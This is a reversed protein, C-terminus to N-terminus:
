LRPGSSSGPPPSVKEHCFADWKAVEEGPQGCMVVVGHAGVVEETLKGSTVKVTVMSNLEQLKSAVCSRPSSRPAVLSTPPLPPPRLCLPTSLSVFFLNQHLPHRRFSHARAAFPALLVSSPPNVVYLYAQEAYPDPMAAASFAPCVAAALPRPFCKTRSSWLAAGTFDVQCRVCRGIVSSSQLIDASLVSGTRKGHLRGM